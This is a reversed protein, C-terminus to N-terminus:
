WAGPWAAYRNISTFAQCLKKSVESERRRNWHQDALGTVIELEERNGTWKTRALGLPRGRQAAFGLDWMRQIIEERNTLRRGTVVDYIGQHEKLVFGIRYAYYTFFSGRSGVDFVPRIEYSSDIWRNFKEIWPETFVSQATTCIDGHEGQGAVQIQTPTIIALLQDHRRAQTLVFDRNAESHELAQPKLTFLTLQDSERTHTTDAWAYTYADRRLRQNIKNVQYVIEYQIM